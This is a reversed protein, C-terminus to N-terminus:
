FDWRAVRKKSRHFYSGVSSMGRGTLFPALCSNQSNAHEMYIIMGEDLFHM